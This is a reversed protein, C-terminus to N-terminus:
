GVKLSRKGVKNGGVVFSGVLGLFMSSFLLVVIYRAHFKWATMSLNIKTKHFTTSRHFYEPARAGLAKRKESHLVCYLPNLKRLVSVVIFRSIILFFASSSSVNNIPRGM